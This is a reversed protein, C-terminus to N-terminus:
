QLNQTKVRKLPKKELSSKSKQGSERLEYLSSLTAEDLDVESVAGVINSLLQGDVITTSEVEVLLSTNSVNLVEPIVKIQKYEM